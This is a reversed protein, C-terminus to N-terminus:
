QCITRGGVRGEAAAAAQIKKSILGIPSFLIHLAEERGDTLWHGAPPRWCTGHRPPAKHAYGYRPAHAKTKCTAAWAEEEKMRQLCHAKAPGNKKDSKSTRHARYERAERAHALGLSEYTDTGNGPCSSSTLSMRSLCLPMTAPYPNMSKLFWSVAWSTSSVNFPFGMPSLSVVVYTHTHKKKTPQIGHVYVLRCATCCYSIYTFNNQYFYKLVCLLNRPSCERRCIM